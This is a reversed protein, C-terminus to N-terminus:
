NLKSKQIKSVQELPYSRKLRKQCSHTPPDTIPIEIIVSVLCSPCQWRSPPKVLPKQKEEKTRPVVSSVKSVKVKKNPITIKDIKIIALDEKICSPCFHPKRGRSKERKWDKSCRNCTLTEKM